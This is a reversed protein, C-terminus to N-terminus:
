SGLVYGMSNSRYRIKRRDYMTGGYDLPKIDVSENQEQVAGFVIENRKETSQEYHTEAASSYHRHHHQQRQMKQQQQPPPEFDGEWGSYFNRSQRFQQMKEADKTMFPYLKRPTPTRTEISPPEDEDPIVFSDQVPWQNSYKQNQPYGHQNQYQYNNLQKKKLGPFIGGLIETAVAGTNVLLKGLSGFFGEEQKEQEDETPILPPRVSSKQHKQYPSPPISTKTSGQDKLLLFM